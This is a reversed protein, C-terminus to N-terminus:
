WAQSGCPKGRFAWYACPKTYPSIDTPLKKQSARACIMPSVFEGLLARRSNNALSSAMWRHITSAAVGLAAATQKITLLEGEPPNTPREFCPIDWHRRLSSVLNATFRHGYASKRGQRNLQSLGTTFNGPRSV